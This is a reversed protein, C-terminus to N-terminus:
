AVWAQFMEEPCSDSMQERLEERDPEPRTSPKDVKREDVLPSNFPIVATVMIPCRNFSKWDM